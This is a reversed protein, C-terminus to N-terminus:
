PAFDTKSSFIDPTHASLFTISVTGQDTESCLFRRGCFWLVDVRSLVVYGKWLSGYTLV